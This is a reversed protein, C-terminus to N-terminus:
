TSWPRGYEMLSRYGFSSHRREYNYYDMQREIVWELDELTAAELQYLIFFMVFLAVELTTLLSQYGIRINQEHDM